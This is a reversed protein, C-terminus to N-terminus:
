ILSQKKTNNASFPSQSTERKEITKKQDGAQKAPNFKVKDHQAQRLMQNKTNIACVAACRLHKGENMKGQHLVFWFILVRAKMGVRLEAQSSFL